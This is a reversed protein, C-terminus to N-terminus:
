EREATLISSFGINLKYFQRCLSDYIDYREKKIRNRNDYLIVFHDNSM